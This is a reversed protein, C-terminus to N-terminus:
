KKEECAQLAKYLYDQLEDHGSAGEFENWHYNVSKAAERVKELASIRSLLYRIDDPAREIFNLDYISFDVEKNRDLWMTPFAHEETTIEWKGQTAAELRAEIEEIRTM